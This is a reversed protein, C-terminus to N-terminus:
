LQNNTTLPLGGDEEMRDVWRGQTDTTWGCTCSPSMGCQGVADHDDAAHECDPCRLIKPDLNIYNTQMASGEKQMQSLM